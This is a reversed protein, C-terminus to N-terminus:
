SKWSRKDAFLTPHAVLVFCTEDVMRALSASFRLSQHAGTTREGSEPNMSQISVETAMRSIFRYERTSETRVYRIIRDVISRMKRLLMRDSIKIGIYLQSFSPIAKKREYILDIKLNFICLNHRRSSSFSLTKM